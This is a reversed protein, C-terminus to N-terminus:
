ELGDELVVKYSHANSLYKGWWFAHLLFLLIALTVSFLLSFLMDFPVYFFMGAAFSLYGLYALFDIPLLYDLLILVFASVLLLEPIHLDTLTLILNAM